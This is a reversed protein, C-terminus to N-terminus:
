RFNPWFEQWVELPLGVKRGQSLSLMRVEVRVCAIKSISRWRAGREHSHQWLPHDFSPGSSPKGNRDLDPTSM